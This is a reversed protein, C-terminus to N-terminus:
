ILAHAGHMCGTSMQEPGLEEDASGVLICSEDLNLRLWSLVLNM